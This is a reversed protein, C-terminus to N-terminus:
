DAALTPLGARRRYLLPWVILEGLTKPRTELGTPPFGEPQHYTGALLDWIPFLGAFNSDYHEPLMSHHRRHYAPSNILWSWRGLNVELRSHTFFNWLGLLAYVAVAEARPSIVLASFSWITVAKILQDGWFHRSTTLVSMEPDSHHLSHMAWLIPIRHQLRHFLWEGFDSVVIFIAVAAWVPLAHSDILSTGHWSPMLTLVTAGVLIYVFWAQLNILWDTRPARVLREVAFIAAAIAFGPLLTILFHMAPM